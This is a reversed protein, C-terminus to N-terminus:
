DIRMSKTFGLDLIVKANHKRFYDAMEQETVYSATSKWTSPQQAREAETRLRYGKKTGWHSHTDFVRMKTWDIMAM